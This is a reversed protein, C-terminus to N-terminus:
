LGSSINRRFFFSQSIKRLPMRILLSSGVCMLLPLQLKLVRHVHMACMEQAVLASHVTKLSSPRLIPIKLPPRLNALPRGTRGPSAQGTASTGRLNRHRFCRFTNTGEVLVLEWGHRLGGFGFHCSTWLCIFSASFTIPLM